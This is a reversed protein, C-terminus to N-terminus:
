TSLFYSVLKIMILMILTTVLIFGGPEFIQVAGM